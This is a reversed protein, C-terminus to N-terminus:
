KVVATLAIMSRGSTVGSVYDEIDRRSIGAAYSAVGLWDDRRAPHAHDLLGQVAAPLIDGAVAPPLKLDALAEALRLLLDPSRAALIGGAGEHGSFVEWDILPDLGLCLCGNLPLAPGSWRAAARVAEDGGGVRLLESLSFMTGASVPQRELAWRLLSRREPGVSAADGIADLDASSAALAAVRARGKRIADAIIRPTDPSTDRPNFLAILRVFTKKDDDGWIPVDPPRGATVRRL